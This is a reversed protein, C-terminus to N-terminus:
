PLRQTVSFILTAPALGFRESGQDLANADTGYQNEPVYVGWGIRGYNDVASNFINSVGLNLYTNSAIRQTFAADAVGYAPRHLSNNSDYHTYNLFIEGGYNNTYDFSAGWKHLPIEPLQSGPILTPNDILLQVPADFITASQVDWYGELYLHPNVRFSGSLEFGRARSSALNLNSSVTINNISPPPNPSAFNPCISQIRSFVGQLYNPGGFENIQNVYGAASTQAEFITNTENTDYWLAQVASDQTFRHAVSLEVDSAKEPLEGPSPITGVSFTQCNGPNIGGAGTILTAIPAPDASSIGGTLRVVDSAVPRYIVSLRPDFSTGGLLSQKLWANVFYSLPGGPTIADRVFYSYIRSYLPEAPIITTDNVNEGTTYQRQWYVGFGIDHKGTPFDDSLLTGFSRYVRTLSSLPGNINSAPRNRVQQYNDIFSDLVIQNKGANTTLRAHYDQNALAQFPGQGGGAPGSANQAYQQQTFCQNGSDTVVTVGAAGSSTTCNTSGKAQNLAYDYTIYDNDGEGSKDDWSTASYGTFSLQTSPSFAYSIRGLANRLTYNGTVVYTDAALTASTFDNGRSGTQAIISPSFDGYTGYTGSVFSYGLKGLTGAFQADYLQRGQDGFGYRLSAQPKQAPSFTQMDISGGIADVGYLGTAGSGYTVVTNQLSFMPAVQFDFGGQGGGISAPYVGYPGIPHGDLMVQTESPKLGRIDIAIDDGVASDQGVLNVGPLKGLGEAVRIQGTRLLLQPDITQQVTTTTQLGSGRTTVTAITKLSNASPSTRSLTLSVDANNGTLIIDDSRATLYGQAIVLINYIGPTLSPFAFRGSSDSTAKAISKDGQLLQLQAGGIPLAGQRDILQGSISAKQPGQPTSQALAPLACLMTCLIVCSAIRMFRVFSRM